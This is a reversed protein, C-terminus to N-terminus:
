LKEKVASTTISSTFVKSLRNVAEKINERAAGENARQIREAAVFCESMKVRYTTAITDTWIMDSTDNNMLEWKAKLSMDIDLGVIPQSKELINVKLLYDAKDDSSVPNFLGSKEIAALIAETFDENSIQSTWLPNTEQGGGVEVTITGSSEDIREINSPIMMNPRSACGALLLLLFIFLFKKMIQVKLGRKKIGINDRNHRTYIEFLVIIQFFDPLNKQSVSRNLEKKAQKKM